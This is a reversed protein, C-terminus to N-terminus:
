RGWHIAADFMPLPLSKFAAMDMQQRILREKETFHLQVTIADDRYIRCVLNKVPVRAYLAAGPGCAELYKLRARRCNELSLFRHEVGRATWYERAKAATSYADRESELRKAEAEFERTCAGGTFLPPMLIVWIVAVLALFKLV